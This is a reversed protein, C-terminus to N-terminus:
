SETPNVAQAIPLLAVPLLRRWSMPAAQAQSVSLKVTDTKEKRSVKYSFLLLSPAFLTAQLGPLTSCSENPKFTM